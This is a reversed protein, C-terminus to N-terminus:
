NVKLQSNKECKKRDTKQGNMGNTKDTNEAKMPSYVDGTIQQRQSQQLNNYLNFDRSEV